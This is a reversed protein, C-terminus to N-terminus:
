CELSESRSGSERLPGALALIGDKTSLSEFAARRMLRKKKKAVFPDGVITAVRVGGSLREPAKEAAEVSYEACFCFLM